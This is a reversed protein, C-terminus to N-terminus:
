GIRTGRSKGKVVETSAQGWVKRAIKIKEGEGQLSEEAAGGGSSRARAQRVGVANGSTGGVDDGSSTDDWTPSWM